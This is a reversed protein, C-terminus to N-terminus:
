FPLPYCKGDMAPADNPVSCLGESDWLLSTNGKGWIYWDNKQKSTRMRKDKYNGGKWWRRVCLFFCVCCQILWAHNWWGSAWWGTWWGMMWYSWIRETEIKLFSFHESEKLENEKLSFWYNIILLGKINLCLEWKNQINYNLSKEICPAVDYHKLGM